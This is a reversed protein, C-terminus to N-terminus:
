SWCALPVQETFLGAQQLQWRIPELEALRLGRDGM